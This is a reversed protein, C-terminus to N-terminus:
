RLVPDIYYSTLICCGLLAFLLLQQLDFYAKEKNKLLDFTGATILYLFISSSVLAMSDSGPWHLMFFILGIILIAMGFDISKRIFTDQSLSKIVLYCSSLSLGIFMLLKGPFILSILLPVSLVSIAVGAIGITNTRKKFSPTNFVSEM